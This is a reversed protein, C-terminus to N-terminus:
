IEAEPDHRRRNRCRPRRACCGPMAFHEDSLRKDLYARLVEQVCGCIHPIVTVGARELAERLGSSIGGCLLIDIGWEALQSVRAAPSQTLLQQHRCGDPLGAAVHAVLLQGAVDFVPSVRGKWDPIAVIM